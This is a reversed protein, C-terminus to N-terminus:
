LPDLTIVKGARDSVQLARTALYRPWTDHFYYGSLESKFVPTGCVSCYM